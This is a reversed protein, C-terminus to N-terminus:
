NLSYIHPAQFTYNSYCSAEPQVTQPKFVPPPLPNKEELRSMSAKPDTTPGSKVWTQQTIQLQCTGANM